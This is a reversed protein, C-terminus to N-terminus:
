TSVGRLDAQGCVPNKGITDMYKIKFWWSLDNLSIMSTASGREGGSHESTEGIWVLNPISYWKVCVPCSQIKFSREKSLFNRCKRHLTLHCKKNFQQQCYPCTFSPSLQLQMQLTFFILVLSYFCINLWTFSVCWVNEWKLKMKVIGNTLKRKETGNRKTVDDNKCDANVKKGTGCEKRLFLIFTVTYLSYEHHWYIYPTVCVVNHASAVM